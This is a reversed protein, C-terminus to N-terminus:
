IEIILGPDFGKYPDGIYGHPNSLVTTAGVQYRTPTHIHGHIWYDPQHRLIFPELNSAYASSLVDERSETSVSQISPAHHTVVVNRKTASAELSAQLWRLSAKHIVYTDVSRLKSYSPERRIMKYDNMRGQCIMGNARGNGLLEFDTWLTAGHFTVDDIVVAANELVHVNTDAAAEMIKRFTKPYTGKYYEHNGLVYIVPVHPIAEKIWEIGKTGLNVDGALIVVDVNQLSIEAKGFEQHLDSAVQIKM